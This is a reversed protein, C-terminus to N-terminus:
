GAESVGWLHCPGAAVCLERIVVGIGGIGRRGDLPRARVAVALALAPRGGVGGVGATTVVGRWLVYDPGGARVAGGLDRVDDGSVVLVLTLIEGRHGWPPRDLEAGHVSGVIGAHPGYALVEDLESHGIVCSSSVPGRKVHILFVVYETVGGKAESNQAISDDYLLRLLPFFLQMGGRSQWWWGCRRREPRPIVVNSGGCCCSRWPHNRVRGHGGNIWVRACLDIVQHFSLLDGRRREGRSSPQLHLPHVSRLVLVPVVTSGLGFPRSREDREGHGVTWVAPHIKNVGLPFQVVVDWVAPDKATM